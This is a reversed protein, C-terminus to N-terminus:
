IEEMVENKAKYLRGVEMGSKVAYSSNEVSTKRIYEWEEKLTFFFHGEVNPCYFKSKELLIKKRGGITKQANSLKTKFDEVDFNLSFDQFIVGCIAKKRDIEKKVEALNELLWEEEDSPYVFYLESDEAELQVDFHEIHKKERKKIVLDYAQTVFYQNDEYGRSCFFDRAKKLM